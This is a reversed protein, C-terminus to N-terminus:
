GGKSGTDFPPKNKLVFFLKQAVKNGSKPLSNQQGTEALSYRSFLV